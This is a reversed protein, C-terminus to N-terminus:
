TGPVGSGSAGTLVEQDHPQSAELKQAVDFVGKLNTMDNKAVNMALKAWSKVSLYPAGIAEWEDIPYKAIGPFEPLNHTMPFSVPLVGLLEQAALNHQTLYYQDHVKNIADDLEEPM